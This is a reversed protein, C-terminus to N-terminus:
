QNNEKYEWTLPTEKGEKIIKGCSLLRGKCVAIIQCRVNKNMGLFTHLYEGAEKLSNFEIDLEKCYVKKTQTSPKGKKAKSCKERFDNSMKKGKNHPSKGKKAESMKRRTEESPNYLGDGGMTCNYGNNYSDYLNIYHTELRNLEEKSEIYDELVILEFADWGWKKIAKAFKTTSQLYDKGNHGARHSPKKTTQGIYYKKTGEAEYKKKNFYAYIRGRLRM